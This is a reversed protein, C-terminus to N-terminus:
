VAPSFSYKTFAIEVKFKIRDGPKTKGYFVTIREDSNFNNKIDKYDEPYDMAGNKNQDEYYSCVIIAPTPITPACAELISLGGFAAIKAGRRVKDKTKAFLNSLEKM